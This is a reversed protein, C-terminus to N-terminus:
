RVSVVHSTLASMIADHQGQLPENQLFATDSNRLVCLLHFDSSNLSSRARLPTLPQHYANYPRSVLRYARM